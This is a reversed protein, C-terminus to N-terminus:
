LARRAHEPAGLAVGDVVLGVHAAHDFPQQGILLAALDLLRQGVVPLRGGGLHEGLDREGLVPQQGGVAVLVVRPVGGRRQDGGHPALGLDLQLAGVCPVEVVQEGVRHPQEGLVWVPEREVALPPAPQHDVLVLVGVLRLAHEDGQQGAGAAVDAADAVVVLEQVAPAPRLRPVDEREALPEGAVRPDHEASVEAAAGLDEVGGDRAHRVVLLPLRLRQDRHAAAPPSTRTVANPVSRWSACHTAAATASASARPM